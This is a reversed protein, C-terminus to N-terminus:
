TWTMGDVSYYLGDDNSGTIWIENAYYVSNFHGSTYNSQTWTMGDTSYYLGKYSNSGAVWIGNAYYVTVLADNTM